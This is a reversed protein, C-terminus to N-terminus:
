RWEALLRRSCTLSAKGLARCEQTQGLYWPMLQTSCLSEGHLSSSPMGHHLRLVDDGHASPTRNPPSLGWGCTTFYEAVHQLYGAVPDPLSLWMITFDWGCSTQLHLSGAEPARTPTARSGRSHSRFPSIAAAPWGRHLEHRTGINPLPHCQRADLSLEEKASQVGAQAIVRMTLVEALHEVQNITSRLHPVQAVIGSQKAHTAQAQSPSPKRASAQLDRVM